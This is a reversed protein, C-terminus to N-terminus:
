FCIRSPSIGIDIIHVYREILGNICYTDILSHIKTMEIIDLM